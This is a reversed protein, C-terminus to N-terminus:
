RGRNMMNENHSNVQAIELLLWMDEVGYITDLEHLTALRTTVVAGVVKSLNEYEVLGRPRAALAAM